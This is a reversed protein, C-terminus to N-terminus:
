SSVGAVGDEGVRKIDRESEFAEQRGVFTNLPRRERPFNFRFPYWGELWFWRLWLGDNPENGTELGNVAGDLGDSIGRGDAREPSCGPAPAADSAASTGPCEASRDAGEEGRKDALVPDMNGTLMSFLFMFGGFLFENQIRFHEVQQVLNVICQM